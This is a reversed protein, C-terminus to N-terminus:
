QVCRSFYFQISSRFCNICHINILGEFVFMEPQCVSGVLFSKQFHRPGRELCVEMKGSIECSSFGDFFVCGSVEGRGAAVCFAHLGQFCRKGGELTRQQSEGHRCLDGLCPPRPFAPISWCQESATGGAWLLRRAPKM